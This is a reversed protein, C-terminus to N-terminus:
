YQARRSRIVLRVHLSLSQGLDETEPLFFTPIPAYIGPRLPRTTSAHNGNVDNLTMIFLPPVFSKCKLRPTYIHPYLPEHIRTTRGSPPHQHEQVPRRQCIEVYLYLVAISFFEILRHTCRPSPFTKVHSSVIRPSGM